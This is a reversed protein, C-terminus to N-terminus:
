KSVGSQAAIKLGEAIEQRRCQQILDAMFDLDTKKSEEYCKWCVIGDDTLARKRMLMSSKCKQCFVPTNTANM